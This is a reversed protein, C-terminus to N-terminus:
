HVFNILYNNPASEKQIDSYKRSYDEINYYAISFLNRLSIELKEDYGIQSCQSRRTKRAM